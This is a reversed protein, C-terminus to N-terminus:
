NESTKQNWNRGRRTIMELREREEKPLTPGKDTAIKKAIEDLQNLFIKKIESNISSTEYFNKLTELAIIQERIDHPIEALKFLIERGEKNGALQEYPRGGILANLASLKDNQDTSRRVVTLLIERGYPDERAITQYSRGGILANLAIQKGDYNGGRGINALDLLIEKREAESVDRSTGGRKAWQYLTCLEVEKGKFIGNITALLLEDNSHIKRIKSNIHKITKNDLGLMNNRRNNLAICKLANRQARPTLQEFKPNDFINVIFGRGVYIIEQIIDFFAFEQGEKDPFKNINPYINLVEYLLTSYMDNSTDYLSLGTGTLLNNIEDVSAKLKILVSLGYMAFEKSHGQESAMRLVLDIVNQREEPIRLDTEIKNIYVDKEVPRMEAFVNPGLLSTSLVASLMFTAIKKMKLILM